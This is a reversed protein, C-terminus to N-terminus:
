FVSMQPNESNKLGITEIQQGLLLFDAINPSNAMKVVERNEKNAKYFERLETLLKGLVNQGILLDDILKCGWFDDKRSQEVIPKNGSLELLEGFLKSNQSLKVRIVWWMIEVRVDDWDLRTHQTYLKRKMKAAMPSKQSMIDKQAEINHPFRMCQYLSETNYFKYGNIRVQFANSM